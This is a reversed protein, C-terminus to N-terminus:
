ELGRLIIEGVLMKFENGTLMLSAQRDYNGDERIHIQINGHDIENISIFGPKDNHHKTLAAINRQKM